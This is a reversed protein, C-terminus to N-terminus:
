RNISAKQMENTVNEGSERQERELEPKIRWEQGDGVSDLQQQVVNATHIEQDPRLRAPQKV